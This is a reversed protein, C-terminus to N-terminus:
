SIEDLANFIANVSPMPRKLMRIPMRVIVVPTVAAAYKQWTSIGKIMFNSVSGTGTVTVEAIIAKM